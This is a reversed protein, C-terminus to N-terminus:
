KRIIPQLTRKTADPVRVTRTDGDRQQMGFVVVKGEYPGKRRPTPRIGMEIEDQVLERYGPSGRRRKPHLDTEDAEVDDSLPTPELTLPALHPLQCKPM